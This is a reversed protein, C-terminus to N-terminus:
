QMGKRVYLLGDVPSLRQDATLPERSKTQQLMTAPICTRLVHRRVKFPGVRGLWPAM